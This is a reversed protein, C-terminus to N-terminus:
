DSAMDEGAGGIYGCYELATGTINVRAIFADYGSEHTLDPGVCVPFTTQTSSTFGAVYARGSLDVSIGRAYDYGSGGIYGCYVLGTGSPNVKAVFADVLGICYTLDPGVTVPFTSEDSSTDGCIYVNGSSDVAIARGADFDAGGIYGLYLFTDGSPNLKAIFADTSTNYTLDPGVAVPFTSEASGTHGTIYTNGQSDVAIATARENKEGGLFGCYLLVVPDLVLPLTPDVRGLRFGLAYTGNEAGPNLDYVMEV